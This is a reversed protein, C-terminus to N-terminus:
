KPPFHHSIQTIVEEVVRHVESTLINWGQPSEKANTKGKRLSYPLLHSLGDLKHHSPDSCIKAQKMNM